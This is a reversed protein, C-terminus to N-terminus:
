DSLYPPKIGFAIEIASKIGPFAIEEWPIEEKSFWKVCSTEHLAKPTGKEIECLFQMALVNSNELPNDYDDEIVINILKKISVEVGVEELVERKLGAILEEGNDLFGGPADWLDFFKKVSRKGLLVQDGKIIIASVTPKSNRWFQYGCKGCVLVGVKDDFGLNGACVPCFKPSKKIM